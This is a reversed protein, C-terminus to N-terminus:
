EPSGMCGGKPALSPKEVKKVIPKDNTEDSQYTVLMTDKSIGVIFGPKLSHEVGLKDKLISSEGKKQKVEFFNSDPYNIFQVKGQPYIVVGEKPFHIESNIDTKAYLIVNGSQIFMKNREFSVRGGKEIKVLGINSPEVCNRDEPAEIVKGQGKVIEGGAECSLDKASQAYAESGSTDCTNSTSVVFPLVMAAITLLRYPLKTSLFQLFSHLFWPSKLADTSIEEAELIEIIQNEIVLQEEKTSISATSEVTQLVHPKDAEYAQSDIKNIMPQDLYYNLWLGSM